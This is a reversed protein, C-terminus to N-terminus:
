SVPEILFFKDV